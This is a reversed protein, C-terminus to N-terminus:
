TLNRNKNFKAGKAKWIKKASFGPWSFHFHQIKFRKQEKRSFKMGFTKQAASDDKFQSLERNETCNEEAGCLTSALQM